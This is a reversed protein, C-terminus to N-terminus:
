IIQLPGLVNAVAQKLDKARYPKGLFAFRSVFLRRLEVNVGRGTTYLVPLTPQLTVARRALVLGGRVDSRMNIETFLLDIPLRGDLVVLAQDASAALLVKYGAHELISAGRVRALDDEEVVLVVGM